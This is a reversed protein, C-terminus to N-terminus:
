FLVDLVCSIRIDKLELLLVTSLSIKITLSVVNILTVVIFLVFCETDNLKHSAAKSYSVISKQQM